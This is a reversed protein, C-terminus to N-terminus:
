NYDHINVVKQGSDSQVMFHELNIRCCRQAGIKSIHQREIPDYSVYPQYRKLIEFWSSGHIKEGLSKMYSHNPFLYLSNGKLKMGRSELIIRETERNNNILDAVLYNSMGEKIHHSLIEIIIRKGASLDDQEIKRETITSEYRSIIQKKLEEISVMGNSRIFEAAGLLSGYQDSFRADETFERLVRISETVVQMIRPLEKIQRSVFNGNFVPVPLSMDAIPHLIVSTIRSMQAQSMKAPETSIFMFMSQPRFDETQRNNAQVTVASSKTSSSTSLNLIRAMNKLGTDGEATEAEEMVLPLVSNKLTRRVGAETSATGGVKYVWDGLLPSLIQEMFYSKGSGAQGTLWVHPRWDLAGCIPALCLWGMLFDAHDSNVNDLARVIQQYDFEPQDNFPNSIVHDSNIIRNEDIRKVVEAGNLWAKSGINILIGDATNYVGAGISRKQQYSGVSQQERNIWDIAKALDLVLRKGKAIPFRQIWWAEPALFLLRNSTLEGARYELVGNTQRVLFYYSDQSYGLFEFPDNTTPKPRLILDIEEPSADKIDWGKPKDPPVVLINATHLISKIISAAKGGPEDNDPWIFVRRGYLPLWDTKDAANAGGMWTVIDWDPLHSAAFDACTEGEVVLVPHDKRLNALRYLPRNEKIGKPIWEDKQEDFSHQHFSKDAGRLVYAVPVGWKDTYQHSHAASLQFSKRPRINLREAIKQTADEYSLNSQKAVLSICDGGEGTAFDYWLGSKPGKITFTLSDGRDGDLNGIVWDSGRIRGASLYIECFREPSEAVSKLVFSQM